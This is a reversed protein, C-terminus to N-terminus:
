RRGLEDVRSGRRFRQPQACVLRAALAAGLSHGLLHVPATPTLVDLLDLLQRVFLAHAYRARPRDSYGHGFLDARITRYGAASLMPVLREFEWAAVTAGHLLLIIPGAQPGDIRYHCNGDRLRVFEDAQPLSRLM